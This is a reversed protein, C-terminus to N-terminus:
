MEEKKIKDVLQLVESMPANSTVPTFKECHRCKVRTRNGMLRIEAKMGAWRDVLVRDDTAIRMLVWIPNLKVKCDRCTVEAEKECVEVHVHQCGGYGHVVSIPGEPEGKKRRPLKTINDTM